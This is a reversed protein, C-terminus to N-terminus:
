SRSFVVRGNPITKMQYKPSHAYTHHRPCLLRGDAVTTKGGKSWPQGHHVHCMAAPWDCGDATCLKDRQAIAIRQAKTHFRRARGQDLIESKGGLVIPVLNAECALKRAQAATLREGTDLMAPTNDGLLNELTMTMVVVTADVGGAQPMQNVPYRTVYECFAHGMGSPTGSHHRHKPSHFAQVAQKLIAGVHSPLTFRGHCLGHGDDSITFRCKELALAEQRELAALEHQEAIDPAVVQLIHDALRKLALPDHDPAVDILHDEAKRRHEVPLADVGRVIVTAQEESVSGAAMADRVPAHDRDLLTALEARHKATRKTQRTANAWWSATDTAGAGPGLDLREAHQLHRLELEHVQSRLAALAALNEETEAPTMSWLPQDTVDTLQQTCTAIASTVRHHGTGSFATAM